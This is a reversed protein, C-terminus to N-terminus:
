RIIRRTLIGSAVLLIGLWLPSTGGTDPLKTLGYRTAATQEANTPDSDLTKSARLASLAASEGLGTRYQDESPYQDRAPTTQALVPGSTLLVLTISLMISLYTVWTGSRERLVKNKM